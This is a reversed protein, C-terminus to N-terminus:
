ESRPLTQNAGGLHDSLHRAWSQVQVYTANCKRFFEEVLLAILGLEPIVSHPRFDQFSSRSRCGNPTLVKVPVYSHKPETVPTSGLRLARFLGICGMSSLVLLFMSLGAGEHDGHLSQKLM